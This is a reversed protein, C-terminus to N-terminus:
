HFVENKKATVMQLCKITSQIGLFAMFFVETHSIKAFGEYAFIEVNRLFKNQRIPKFAFNQPPQNDKKAVQKSHFM